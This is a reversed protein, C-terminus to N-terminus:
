NAEGVFLFTLYRELNREEPLKQIPYDGPQTYFLEPKPVKFILKQKGMLGRIANDLKLVLSRNTQTANHKLVGALNQQRQFNGSPSQEYEELVKFQASFIKKFDAYSMESLHHPNHHDAPTLYFDLNPSSILVKAKPQLVKTADKLFREPEQIHEITEFSVLAEFKTNLKELEEVPLCAFELNKLHGYTARAEAIAEQSIDVGVVEKAGNLALHASGYGTGCAADLVVKDQTHGAAFEYRSIHEAFYTDWYETNHHIREM